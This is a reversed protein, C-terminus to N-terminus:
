RIARLEEATWYDMRDPHADRIERVTMPVVEASPPAFRARVTSLVTAIQADTLIQGFGPMELEYTEGGVDIPGGVGHLVIRIIRGEPGRLWPSDALPPIGHEAGEGEHGHCAECYDRFLALGEETDRAPRDDVCGCVLVALSLICPRVLSSV